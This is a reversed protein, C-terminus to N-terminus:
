EKREWEWGRQDRLCMLPDVFAGGPQCSRPRTPLCHQCGQGQPSGRLGAGAGELLHPGQGQVQTAWCGQSFPAAAPGAALLQLPPNLLLQSLLGTWSAVPSPPCVTGATSPSLPAGM